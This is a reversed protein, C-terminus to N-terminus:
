GQMAQEQLLRARGRAARSLAPLQFRAAELALVANAAAQTDDAPVVFGSVGSEVLSPPAGRRYCIVPRGAAMAEMVTRGFSEAFKSLSMVVDAQELAAVPSAAYDRFEVNEPLPQMLHLDQTAPGILRFRIPREAKAVIRAVALFDALGKKAINSSILAVNLVEDPAFPLEFLAEDVSNPRIAIREPCGLWDAAVQSTVIFRDARELLIQRLTDADAGLTWCLASDEAPLERLHLVSKVGEARAALLPADMVMTNLHIEAPRYKGILARIAEVTQQPPQRLAHMWMQPLMEVAASVQLLRDLYDTNRLAPLVVVPCLGRQVMRELVGFLSREAGFLTEGTMHAFVMVRPAEEPTTDALAGAFCPLPDLGQDRGVTEYHVLPNEDPSLGQARRYGGTSFGPGPDRNERAGAMLYHRVAGIESHMVDANQLRYWDEDLLPSDHLLDYDTQPGQPDGLGIDEPVRFPRTEPVQPLYLDAPSEARSHWQHVAEMYDRRLGRFQTRLHTASRNTLSEPASRGFALPLGPCVEEIARPGYAQIVRYYYETDANVRVRDWYGLEDRLGARIMMSSVNRYVWGEEMRWRSMDLDNSVRVWHSLCAKLEPKAILAQAQMEIKQPHSWDDADHVTIFDGKAAAFGTNRAPYAGQNREHAIVRIRPDKAAAARAIDLSNDSSGDDVVLIELRPWSQAQLGRLATPLGGAGNFVPLIVSVLPLSAPDAGSWPAPDAQLRDFLAGDGEAIQVPALDRPQYIRLLRAALGAEPVGQAKDILLGALDFDPRPGFREIGAALITEAGARDDCGLCLQVGLLYPGPHSIVRTGVPDAYFTLIAKRAQEPSQHEHDWRALVWGAAARELVPGTELLARLAPLAEAEHGRWLLLDLELAQVPRGQRGEARGFRDYHTWPDTGSQRVDPYAQLYWVPDFDEPRDPRPDSPAFKSM